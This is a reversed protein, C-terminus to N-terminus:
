MSVFKFQTEFTVHCEDYIRRSRDSNSNFDFTHNVAIKCSEPM